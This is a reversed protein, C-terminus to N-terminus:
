KICCMYENMEKQWHETGLKMRKKKELFSSLPFFFSFFFFLFVGNGAAVWLFFSISVQFILMYLIGIAEPNLRLNKRWFDQYQRSVSTDINQVNSLSVVSFRSLVSSSPRCYVINSLTSDGLPFTGFLTVAFPYPSLATSKM